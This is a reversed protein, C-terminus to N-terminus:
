KKNGKSEVLNGICSIAISILVLAISIEFDNKGGLIPRIEFKYMVFSTIGGVLFMISLVYYSNKM